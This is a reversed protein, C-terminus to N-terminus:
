TAGRRGRSARTDSCFNSRFCMDPFSQLGLGASHYIDGVGQGLPLTPLEEIASEREQGSQLYTMWAFPQVVPYRDLLEATEPVWDDNLFILDSDLWMVKDVTPPLNELAINLLREKQWLTNESLTRKHILIDCDPPLPPSASPPPAAGGADDANPEAGGDAGDEEDLLKAAKGDEGEDDKDDGAEGGGGADADNPGKLQFPTQKGFVLEVCLLQLGQAAVGQRFKRFNDVGNQHRGPNFFTTIGIFKGCRRTRGSLWSSVAAAAAAAAAAATAAEVAQAGATMRADDNLLGEGLQERVSTDDIGVNNNTHTAVTASEDAEDDVIADDGGGLNPLAPRRQRRRRSSHRRRVNQDM